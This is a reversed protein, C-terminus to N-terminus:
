SAIHSLCFLFLNILYSVPVFSDSDGELATVAKKGYSSLARSSTRGTLFGIVGYAQSSLLDRFSISVSPWLFGHSIVALQIAPYYRFAVLFM